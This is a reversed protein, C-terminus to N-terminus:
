PSLHRDTQSMPLTSISESGIILPVKVILLQNQIIKCHRHNRKVRRLRKDMADEFNERESRKEDGDVSSPGSISYTPTKM